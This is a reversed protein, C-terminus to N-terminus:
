RNPQENCPPLAGNHQEKYEELLEQERQDFAETVERRYTTARKSCPGEDGRHHAQLRSRITADGGSARGIYIIPSGGYLVYVGLEEPTKDINVKGFNYSKGSIPMAAGGISEAIRGATGM